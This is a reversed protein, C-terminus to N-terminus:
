CRGLRLLGAKFGSFMVWAVSRFVTSRNYANAQGVCGVLGCPDITLVELADGGLVGAGPAQGMEVPGLARDADDVTVGADVDPAEDGLSRTACGDDIVILVAQVEAAVVKAEGTATTTSVALAAKSGQENGGSGTSAPTGSGTVVVVSVM